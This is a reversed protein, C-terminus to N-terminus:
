RTVPAKDFQNGTLKLLCGALTFTTWSLAPIYLSFESLGQMFWGLLGLYVAFALADTSRWVRLGTIVLFSVIWGLYSIGGPIGSDTFQELYDNHALRAMESEPLKFRAYARQFTGPGSGFLPLEATTKLAGRWYDFRAGVSTAGSMFYGRFRFGFATLSVAALLVILATKLRAPWKLRFLWLGGLAVGILWGSKSGTVYLGGIGFFLTLAIAAVRIPSRLRRTDKFAFVTAAPMLLLVAAALANPYVQTGYVRRKALKQLVIPNAIEVGNTFIIFQDRRWEKMVEATVNTWGNSEAQILQQRVIPLETWQWYATLLCILLGGLAGALLLRLGRASGIVFTGMFYGAVCGCFLPLTLATLRADVTRTASLFQWGLWIVPLVWLSRAAPWKRKKTLALVGGMVALPLLLWFAWHPPWPDSWADGISAPPTVKDDLIVPNGSKLLAFGLFLGFLAAFIEQLTLKEHAATQSGPSPGAQRQGSHEASKM